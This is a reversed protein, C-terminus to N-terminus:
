RAEDGGGGPGDAGGDGGRDDSEGPEATNFLCILNLIMQCTLVITEVPPTCGSHRMVSSIWWSIAAIVLVGMNMGLVVPYYTLLWVDGRRILLVLNALSVVAVYALVIAVGLNHAESDDILGGVFGFGAFLFCPGAIAVNSVAVAFKLWTARRLYQLLM